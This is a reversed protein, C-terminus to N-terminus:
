ERDPIPILNPDESQDPEPLNIIRTIENILCSQGCLNKVKSKLYGQSNHSTRNFNSFSKLEENVLLDFWHNSKGKVKGCQDCIVQEIKM